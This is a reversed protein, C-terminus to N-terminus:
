ANQTKLRFNNPFKLNGFLEIKSKRTLEEYRPKDWKDIKKQKGENLSETYKVEIGLFSKKGTNEKLYEIFVDFATNDHTFKKDRRGLSYEFEIKTIKGINLEPFLEIFIKTAIELHDKLECFINFCLPQSSLLNTFFRKTHFVPTKALKPLQEKVFSKINDTLFNVKHKLAYESEVYNGYCNGRNSMGKPYGKKERWKSQLLRAHATFIKDGKCNASFRILEQKSPRYM